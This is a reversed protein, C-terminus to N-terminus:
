DGGGDGGGGDSSSDGGGDSACDGDSGWWGGDGDYSCDTDTYYDGHELPHVPDYGVYWDTTSGSAAEHRWRLRRRPPAPCYRCQRTSCSWMCARREGPAPTAWPPAFLEFAQTYRPEPLGSVGTLLSYRRGRALSFGRQDRHAQLSLALIREGGVAAAGRVSFQVLCVLAAPVFLWAFCGFHAGHMLAFTIVALGLLSVAGIIRVFDYGREAPSPTNWGRAALQDRVQDLAAGLPPPPNLVLDRAKRPTQLLQLLAVEIGCRATAEGESTQQLCVTGGEAHILGRELLGLLAVRTVEQYPLKRTVVFLLESESLLPQDPALRGLRALRSRLGLVGLAFAACGLLAISSTRVMRVM